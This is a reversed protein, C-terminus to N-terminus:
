PLPPPTTSTTYVFSISSFLSATDTVTQPHKQAHPTRTHHAHTEELTSRATYPFDLLTFLDRKLQQLPSRTHLLAGKRTITGKHTHTHSRTLMQATLRLSGMAEILRKTQKKETRSRPLRRPQELGRLDPHSRTHKCTDAYAPYTRAKTKLGGGRAVHMTMRVCRRPTHRVKRNKGGAGNVSKKM